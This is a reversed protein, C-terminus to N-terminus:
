RRSLTLQHRDSRCEVAPIRCEPAHGSAFPDAYRACYAMTGDFFMTLSTTIGSLPATARGIISLYEAASVREYIPLEELWRTSAEDSSISVELTVGRNRGSITRLGPFFEAGSLAVSFLGAMTEWVNLPASYTRSRVPAPLATCAAAATFTISYEGPPLLAPEASLTVTIIAQDRAAQALTSLYGARSVRLTVPDAVSAPDVFQFRGQADSM